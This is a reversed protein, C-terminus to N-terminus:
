AAIAGFIGVYEKGLAAPWDTGNAEVPEDLAKALGGFHWEQNVRMHKAVGTEFQGIIAVVRPRQLVVEPVLFMWHVTLYISM